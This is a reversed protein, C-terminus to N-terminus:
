NKISKAYAKISLLFEEALAEVQDPNENFSRWVVAIDAGNFFARRIDTPSEGGAVSIVSNYAGKIRNIEHFPIEALTEDAGRHLVVIDPQKKLKALVEFPFKVNLMDVMSDINYKTCDAIFDNITETPALGLCTVASAGASKAISVETSGRDMCKMDAVVYAGAGIRRSWNNVLSRIGREGNQKIFPTGAEVIIRESAPLRLIMDDVEYLSRNFAIQLHKQKKNLIM